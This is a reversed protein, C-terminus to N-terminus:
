RIVEKNSLVVIYLWNGEAKERKVKRVNDLYKYVDNLAIM